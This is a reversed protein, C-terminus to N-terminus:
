SVEELQSKQEKTTSCHLYAQTLTTLVLLVYLAFLIGNMTGNTIYKMEFEVIVSTFTGMVNGNEGIMEQINKMMYCTTLLAILGTLIIRFNVLRKSCRQDKKRSKIQFFCLPVGILLFAFTSWQCTPMQLNETLVTQTTNINEQLTRLGVMFSRDCYITDEM